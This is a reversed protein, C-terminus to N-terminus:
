DQMKEAILRFSLSIIFFCSVSHHSSFRLAYGEEFTNKLYVLFQASRVPSSRWWPTRLRLSIDRLQYSFRDILVLSISAENCLNLARWKKKNAQCLDFTRVQRYHNCCSVDQFNGSFKYTAGKILNWKANKLKQQWRM